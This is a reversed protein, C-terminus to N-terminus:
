IAFAVATERMVAEPTRYREAMAREQENRIQAQMYAGLHRARAIMATGVHLRKKEFERLAESYRAAPNALADALAAADSGAKTVGMGVHPRAVFAADGILVVRGFVLSPSELDYIPQFFPRATRYLVEAFQPALLRHADARVKAIVEQRILPPPIGFEHVKGQADTLMSVLDTKEDAPRYWVINYRRKGPEASNGDGAIPYGVLQEGPPLCFSFRGFLDENTEPSLHPEEAVGRWAVYGAYLPTVQPLFQARITSRTGDAAVLLDAGRRSGDDFHATVETDNQEVRLVSVGQRYQGSPFQALLLEYIRGWSTLVQPYELEGVIDGSSGFVVRSRLSVGVTEGAPVGVRQLLDLLEEHTAIGAGRSSLPEAVREYIEVEWGHQRLLNGAFLGAVSGGIILARRNKM